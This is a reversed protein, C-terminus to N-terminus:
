DIWRHIVNAILSTWGTQHSAGLGRGNDGHFHEYFLIKDKFHPDNKFLPDDGHIPRGDEGMKFLKLLANSYYDVLKDLTVEEENPAQVKLEDGLIHHLKEVTEIFLYTTPFWIPGRWNSNGGKLKMKCEAPDYSLSQDFLTIPHDEHYLSLSRLGFESRFESPDWARTLVRQMQKVNMLSMLFGKKKKKEIPTICHKAIDKRNQLFWEVSTAFEPLQEMEEESIWDIAFMPIIGVLSRVAIKEHTGDPKCLVDYFFGDEDDWIQVERVGSRHLAGAIYAFHEFFKVALAEYDKDHKSLELAIRMLMLCYFGVWGTGDSQELKGGGPIGESRDIVTINDLGLFGGEFINNGSSDVKNVWWVFNLMMKHFCKKLFSIDQRGTENVEHQYLTWAAWAQVPPNMDSFEWEYAPIQGNPHQFQDFLLLWLQEKAFEIDVLACSVCHFALDWAAFWPYEWKDPMLMIRKSVLHRWHQNRITKRNPHPPDNPNDGILWRQVDFIYAQKSWLLSSLAEKFIHRTDDDVDKQLISHYFEEAEKKRKEIHMPVDHLPRDMEQDCFRFHFQKVEGPAFAIDKYHMCGKTGEKQPNVASEGDVITRHFGDKQFPHINNKGYIRAKNTVNHTFLLEAGNQGYFYRKGLSYDFTIFAVDEAESDDFILCLHDPHSEDGTVKYKDSAIGWSWVNRFLGQPIFDLIAENQSHNTIEVCMVMDEPTVKAYEIAIDFYNGEDFIGTDSLEYERDEAGRKQSEEVLQRYPYEAQPYKYLYRMYSHTPTNDTYFYYEKVDEGHNGEHSNVGFLREKLYPDHHNWFAFSLTMVQYRDCIGGIGDEGWRYAKSRANDHPLFNWADGNNSYDERVTGWSRESLYPGWRYWPPVSGGENGNLRKKEESVRRSM